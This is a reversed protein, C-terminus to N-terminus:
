PLTPRTGSLAEPSMRWVSLEKEEQNHSSPDTDQGRPTEAEEDRFHAKSGHKDWLHNHISVVTHYESGKVDHQGNVRWRRPPLASSPPPIHSNNNRATVIITERSASGKRGRSCEMQLWALKLTFPIETVEGAKWCCRSRAGQVLPRICIHGRM